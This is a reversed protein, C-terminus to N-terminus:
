EKKTLGEPLSRKPSRRSKQKPPLNKKRTLNKMLSKPLVKRPIKRRIKTRRPSGTKKTQDKLILQMMQKKQIKLTKRRKTKLHNKRNKMM